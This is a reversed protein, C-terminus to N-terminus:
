YLKKSNLYYKQQKLEDLLFSNQKLNKIFIFM